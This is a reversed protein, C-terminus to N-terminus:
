IITSTPYNSMLVSQKKSKRMMMILWVFLLFFLAMGTICLINITKLRNLVKANEDGKIDDVGVSIKTEELKELLAINDSLNLQKLSTINDNAKELKEVSPLYNRMYKTYLSFSFGLVSVILLIAFYKKKTM